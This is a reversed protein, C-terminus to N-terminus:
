AAERVAAAGIELAAQNFVPPDILVRGGFEYIARAEKLKKHNKRIFWDVSADSPFVEENGARYAKRTKLRSLEVDLSEM